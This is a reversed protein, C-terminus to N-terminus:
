ESLVNGQNDYCVSVGNGDSCTTNGNSDYCWHNRNDDFECSVILPNGYEDIALDNASFCLPEGYYVVCQSYEYSDYSMYNVSQDYKFTVANCDDDGTVETLWEELTKWSNAVNLETKDYFPSYGDPNAYMWGTIPDQCFGDYQYWRLFSKEEIVEEPDVTVGFYGPSIFCPLDYESSLGHGFFIPQGTEDIPRQDADFCEHNGHEDSCTKQGDEDYCWYNGWGDQECFVILSNGGLGVVQGPEDIPFGDVDFCIPHGEEDSCMLNGVLDYCLFNNESDTQCMSVGKYHMNGVRYGQENILNGHDDVHTIPVGYADICGGNTCSLAGSADFCLTYGDDYTMCNDSPEIGGSPDVLGFGPMISQQFDSMMRDVMEESPEDLIMCAQVDTNVLLICVGAPQLYEDLMLVPQVQQRQDGSGINTSMGYSFSTACLTVAAMYTGYHKM